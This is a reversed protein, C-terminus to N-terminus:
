ATRTATDNRWPLQWQGIGLTGGKAMQTVALLALATAGLNVTFHFWIRYTAVWADPMAGFGTSFGLARGASLVTVTLLVHEAVHASQLWMVAKLSRTPATGAKRALLWTGALGALFIGNGLLHLLEVGISPKGTVVWSCGWTLGDAATAAWPTLWPAADMNRFWYGLQLGHEVFHVCQFALGGLAVAALPWEHGRSGRGSFVLAATLAAALLAVGIGSVTAPSMWETM